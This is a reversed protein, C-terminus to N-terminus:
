KPPQMLQLQMLQASEGQTQNKKLEPCVIVLLKHVEWM